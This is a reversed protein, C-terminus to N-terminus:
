AAVHALKCSTCPEAKGGFRRAFNEALEISAFAQRQCGHAGEPKGWAKEERKKEQSLYSSDQPNTPFDRQARYRCEAAIRFLINNVDVQTRPNKFRLVAVGSQEIHSDRASDRKSDHTKGDLEVAVKAKNCYFDVIYGRLVIQRCFRFGRVGKSLCQWLKKEHRTPNARLKKAYAFKYEQAFKAM